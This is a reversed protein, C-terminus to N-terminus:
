KNNDEKIIDAIFGAIYQGFINMATGSIIYKDVNEHTVIKSANRMVDHDVLSLTSDPDWEGDSSSNVAHTKARNLTTVIATLALREDEENEVPANFIFNLYEKSVEPASM